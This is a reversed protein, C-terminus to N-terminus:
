SANLKEQFLERARSVNFFGCPCHKALGEAAEQPSMEGGKVKGLMKEVLAPAIQHHGCMTTFELIEKRPLKDTRGFCGFSHNVTHPKLGVEKCAELTSEYIGGCTVSLGLDEEKLHKLVATLKELSDYVVTIARGDNVKEIIEEPTAKYINGFSILGLNSPKYQMAIDVFKRITETSGDYNIGKAPMAIITHDNKLNELTGIRHLSHTM